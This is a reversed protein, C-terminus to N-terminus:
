KVEKPSLKSTDSHSVYYDTSSNPHYHNNIKVLNNSELVSRSMSNCQQSKSLLKLFLERDTFYKSRHHDMKHLVNVLVNYTSGWVKGALNLNHSVKEVRTPFLYKSSVDSHRM